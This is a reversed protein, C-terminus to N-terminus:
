SALNTVSTGAYGMNLSLHANNSTQQSSSTSVQALQLKLDAILEHQQADEMDVPNPLDPSDKKSALELKLQAIVEQLEDM